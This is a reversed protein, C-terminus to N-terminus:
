RGVFSYGPDRNPYVYGRPSIRYGPRAPLHWQLNRGHAQGLIRRGAAGAIQDSRTTGVLYAGREQAIGGRQARATTAGIGDAGFGASGQNSFYNGISNRDGGYYDNREYLSITDIDQKSEATLLLSDILTMLNDFGPGGDPLKKEAEQLHKRAAQIYPDIAKAAEPKVLGSRVNTEIVRETTSVRERMVAYRTTPDNIVVPSRFGVCGIQSLCVLSLLLVKASNKAAEVTVSKRITMQTILVTTAVLSEALDLPQQGNVEVGTAYALWIAIISFSALIYTKYGSLFGPKM